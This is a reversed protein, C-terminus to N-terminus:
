LFPSRSHIALARWYQRRWPLYSEKNGQQEDEQADAHIIQDKTGEIKGPAANSEFLATPKEM